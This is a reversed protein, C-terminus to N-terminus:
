LWKVKIHSIFAPRAKVLNWTIMKKDKAASFALKGSPHLALATVGASHKYLTKEVQWSGMRVVSISNDDSATLLHATPGHTAVCSVTGEHHTLAGHEVRKELDFIKCQEDSGGSIAYKSGPSNSFYFMQM